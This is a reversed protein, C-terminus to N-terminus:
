ESDRLLLRFLFFGGVLILLIVSFKLIMFVTKNQKIDGSLCYRLFRKISTAPTGREAEAIAMDVDGSLFSGYVYKIIKGDAAVAVLASPHLFLGDNAAKFTYGIAHTVKKINVFTGTLFHWNDTPYHEALMATYNKKTRAADAPTERQNFSLTIVSFTDHPLSTQQLALALNAMDFSCIQPCTFYVPLLLTPKDIIEGLAVKVGQDDVFQLELPLYNGTKEVVGTAEEPDSVVPVLGDDAAEAGGGALLLVLLCSFTLLFRM